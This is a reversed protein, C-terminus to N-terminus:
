VSIYIHKINKSTSKYIYIYIYIYIPLIYTNIYINQYM